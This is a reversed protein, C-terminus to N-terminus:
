YHWILDMSAITLAHKTGNDFAPKDLANYWAIEPRIEVQPSFWHQWGFAFNVYQTAFGTRQGNLDNYYEARWTLNDMDSWRYNLYSLAAYERATCSMQNAACVAENPPNILFAFPTAGFGLTKNPVNKEYMYYSEVSIHWKDDFKHYYTGGWWQLNNYGWQGDNIGNACLYLADYNTDSQWQVCGTFTPQTGPDRQGHYGPFGTTPNILSVQKANWPVTETGASLGFQLLWNKNVKLSTLLGTNTFNDVAYTMSHSYMYNNPALQAEIDPVSIYRGLRFELGDLVGPVYLEGYVMPVDWGAFHNHVAFQNSLVGLATTFRYNEGYFGSLRFGWDIHDQQVTDPVREVYMVAQDLQLINPTYSYAAPANGAYGTKATSVNGGADIWGYIQIHADELPKGIPTADLAHMLPSDVANPIAAGIYDMGGAPWEAFPYPPITEPQPPFPAPRRSVVPPAGPTAPASPMGWEDAYAHYFATFFNLEEQTSPVPALPLDAARAFQGTNLLFAGAFLAPLLSPRRQVAM